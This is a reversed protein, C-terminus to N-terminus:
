VQIKRKLIFVAGWSYDGHGDKVTPVPYSDLYEWGDNMLNEVEAIDRVTRLEFKPGSRGHIDKYSETM